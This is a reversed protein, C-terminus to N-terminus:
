NIGLYSCCASYNMNSIYEPCDEEPHYNSNNENMKCILCYGNLGCDILEFPEDSFYDSSCYEELQCKDLKNIKPTFKSFLSSNSYKKNKKEKRAKRQKKKEKRAKEKEGVVIWESNNNERNPYRLVFQKIAKSKSSTNIVDFDCNKNPM